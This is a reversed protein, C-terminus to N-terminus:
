RIVEVAITIATAPKDAFCTFTLTNATTVDAKGIMNWAEKEQLATANSSSYVPTIHVQKDTPAIGTVTVTQTYPAATGAWTASITATYSVAVAAGIQEPRIADAGGAAHQNAHTMSAKGNQLNAINTTATDVANKYEDSFDNTSLGKGAVKDVKNGLAASNKTCENENAKMQTDIKDMNGNQVEVDYFESDLPKVLGFNLTQNAM